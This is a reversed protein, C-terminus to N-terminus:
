AAGSGCGSRSALRWMLIGVLMAWVLFVVSALMSLTMAFSSFGMSVQAAGAVLLGLGDLLGMAGLWTPYRTSLLGAPGFAMLTLGSLVSLFGALGIEVQRLALAVEFALVRAEGGSAAWRDVAVKLAVGDVAQLAAAVPISAV